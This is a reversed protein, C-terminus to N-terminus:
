HRGFGSGRGAEAEASRGGVGAREAAAEVATWLLGGVFRRRRTSVLGLGIENLRKQHLDDLRRTVIELSPPIELRFGGSEAINSGIM